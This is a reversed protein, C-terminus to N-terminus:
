PAGVYRGAIAVIDLGAQGADAAAQFIEAATDAIPMEAGSATAATILYALDKAALDKAVLGIPFNPNFSREAILGLARQM